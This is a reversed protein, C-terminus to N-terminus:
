RMWKPCIILLPFAHSYVNALALSSFTKGLGAEDAILIQGSLKVGKAVCAKQHPLLKDYLNKKISFCGIAEPDANEIQVTTFDKM